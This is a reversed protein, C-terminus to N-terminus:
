TRQMNNSIATNSRSGHPCNWQENAGRFGDGNPAAKRGLGLRGIVGDSKAAPAALDPLSNVYCSRVMETRGASRESKFLTM